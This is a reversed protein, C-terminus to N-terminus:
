KPLAISAYLVRNQFLITLAVQRGNWCSRLLLRRLRLENVSVMFFINKKSWARVFMRDFFLLTLIHLPTFANM